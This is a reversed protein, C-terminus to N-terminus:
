TKAVGMYTQEGAPNLYFLMMILVVVTSSRDSLCKFVDEELNMQINCQSLTIVEYLM